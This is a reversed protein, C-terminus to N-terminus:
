VDPLRRPRGAPQPVKWMAVDRNAWDLLFPFPALHTLLLVAGAFLAVFWM